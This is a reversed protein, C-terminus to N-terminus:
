IRAVTTVYSEYYTTNCLTEKKYVQKFKVKFSIPPSMRDKSYAISHRDTGKLLKNKIMVVCDLTKNQLFRKTFYILQSVRM